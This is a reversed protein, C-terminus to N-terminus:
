RKTEVPLTGIEQKLDKIASLWYTVGEEALKLRHETEKLKRVLERRTWGNESVPEAM